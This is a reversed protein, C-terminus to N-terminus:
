RLLLCYFDVDSREPNPRPEVYSGNPPSLTPLFFLCMCVSLFLSLSLSIHCLAASEGVNTTEKIKTELSAPARRADLVKHKDRTKRTTPQDAVVSVLTFPLALSSLRLKSVSSTGLGTGFRLM